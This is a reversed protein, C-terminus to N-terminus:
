AVEEKVGKYIVAIGNFLKHYRLASFGAKAFRVNFEEITPFHSVSDPLYSYAGSNKSIVKGIFPLLHYFYWLYIKRFLFHTPLSFELIVFVAGPKLVRRVESLAADMQGMNRIGFAIMAGDFTEDAFSLREGDGNVLHLMGSLARRERKKKGIQLMRLAIDLGVVRCKKKNIATFALDATGSALDLILSHPAVDLFSVTKRRWYIDIGFSLLHNLLDYHGAINNFMSRVYKKRATGQPLPRSKM